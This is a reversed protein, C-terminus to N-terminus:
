PPSTPGHRTPHNSFSPRRFPCTTTPSISEYATSRPTTATPDGYTGARDPHRSPVRRPESLSPQHRLTRSRRFGSRRSSPQTTSRALELLRPAVLRRDILEHFTQNSYSLLCRYCGRVCADATDLGTDPDVHIIRFRKPQLAASHTRNRRYAPPPRRRRGRGSRHVLGPRTGRRDPLLESTLESDELQFTAEIGREIAFQLTAAESDTSRNSGDCSPSTGDTRSTRPSSRRQSSTPSDPKWTTTPTKRFPAATRTASGSAKSSTSGSGMRTATRATADVWTPSGSKPPTAM